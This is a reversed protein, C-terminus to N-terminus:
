RSWGKPWRGFVRRYARVIPPPAPQRVRVGPAHRTAPGRRGYRWDAGVAKLQEFILRYVPLLDARGSIWVTGLYFRLYDGERLADRLDTVYEDLFAGSGRWTGLDVMRGDSATVCNNDSFVDWACMGILETVEQESDVPGSKHEARVRALTPPADHSARTDAGRKSALLRTLQRLRRHMRRREEFIQEVSPHFCAILSSREWGDPAVANLVDAGAFGNPFLREFFADLEDDSLRPREEVAM